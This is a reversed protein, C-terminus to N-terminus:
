TYLVQGLFGGAIKGVLFTTHLYVCVGIYVVSIQFFYLNKKNGSLMKIM